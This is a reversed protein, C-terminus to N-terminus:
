GDVFVEFIGIRGRVGRRRESLRRRAGRGRGRFGGAVWQDRFERKGVGTRM